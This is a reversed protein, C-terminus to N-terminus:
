KVRGRCKAVFAMMMRGLFDVSETERKLPARRLSRVRYLTRQLTPNVIRRAWLREAEVDTYV